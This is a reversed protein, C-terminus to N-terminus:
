LLQITRRHADPVASALPTRQARRSVIELHTDQLGVRSGPSRSEGTSRAVPGAWGWKLSDRAIAPFNQM